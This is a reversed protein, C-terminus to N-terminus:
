LIRAVHLVAALGYSRKCAGRVTLVSNSSGDVCAPDQQVRLCTVPPPYYRSEMKYQHASTYAIRRGGGRFRASDNCGTTGHHQLYVQHM